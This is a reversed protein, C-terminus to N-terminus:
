IDLQLIYDDMIFSNGIDTEASDIIKFGMHKYIEITNYNYKNVTLYIGDMDSSCKIIENLMIRSVGMGRYEKKVYLKSLFMRSGDKKFGTYGIIEGNAIVNLYTYGERKIQNSIARHSQFKELMYKVQEAGIISTFHQTWIEKATEATKEIDIDTEVKKLIVEM